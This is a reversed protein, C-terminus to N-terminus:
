QLKWFEMCQRFCFPFDRKKVNKKVIVPYQAYIKGDLLYSVQGIQQGAEVPATLTKKMEIRVQVKEGEKMLIETVAPGANQSEADAQVMGSQEMGAETDTQGKGSQETGGQKMNPQEMGAQETDVQGIGAQEADEQESDSQEMGAQETNVQGIGAQEAGEEQETQERELGTGKEWLVATAVEQEQGDLVTVTGTELTRDVIERKEFNELGYKMLKKTDVWKYGKNNPWGCALLSVILLKGDQELAGVYCYGAKATFGTKGSVAGQLITLLANHNTCGYNRNGEVNTFTYSSTQTIELFEETKPSQTLCYRMVLALEYATTHHMGNEDEADLGNPTIYYTNECGIERAKENMLGAFTEVSGAVSEAICVASDNHSELMLSYLLDKLYFTDGEIMGLKVKPQSSATGSVSCIMDPEANELAVICTMIKTTSAMPLERDEEKGYLIRGSDGDILVASGAYLQVDEQAASQLVFFALLMWLLAAKLCFRVSKKM